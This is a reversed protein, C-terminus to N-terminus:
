LEICWVISTKCISFFSYFNLVRSRNWIYLKVLFANCNFLVCLFIYGVKRCGLWFTGVYMFYYVGGGKWGLVCWTIKHCPTVIVVVISSVTQTVVRIVGCLSPVVNSGINLARLYFKLFNCYKNIIFARVVPLKFIYQEEGGNCGFKWTLGFYGFFFPFLQWIIWLFTLYINGM